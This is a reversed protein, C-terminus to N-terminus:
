GNNFVSKFYNKFVVWRFGNFLIKYFNIIIFVFYVVECIYLINNELLEIGVILFLDKILFM